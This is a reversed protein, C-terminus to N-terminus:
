RGHFRCLDKETYSETGEVRLVYDQHKQTNSQCGCDPFEESGADQYWISRTVYETLDLSNRMTTWIQPWTGQRLYIFRLEVIKLTKAHRNLFGLLSMQSTNMYTLSINRLNSWIKNGFVDNLEVPMGSYGDSDINLDLGHLLHLSGLFALLLGQRCIDVHNTPGLERVAMHMRITKVSHLTRSMLSLTEENGFLHWSVHGFSLSQLVIGTGDIGRLLTLLQPLAYYYDGGEYGSTDALVEDYPGSFKPNSLWEADRKRTMSTDKWSSLTVHDLNPLHAISAVIQAQGFAVNQFRQQERWLMKYQIWKRYLQTQTTKPLSQIPNDLKWSDWHGYWVTSPPESRYSSFDRITRLYALQPIQLYWRSVTQYYPLCGARYVLSKVHYSLQPHESIRQLRDFSKPTFFLEVEPLLYELGVAGLLKCTLRLKPVDCPDSAAFIMHKLADYLCELALGILGKFESLNMEWVLLDVILRRLPSGPSTTGYVYGITNPKWGPVERGAYERLQDIVSNQLAESELKNALVYLRCCADFSLEEGNRSTNWDQNYIWLVYSSFIEPDDDILRIKSETAEKWSGTLAANFFASKSMLLGQHISFPTEAAGVFITVIEGTLGTFFGASGLMPRRFTNPSSSVVTNPSPSM